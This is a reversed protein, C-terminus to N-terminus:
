NTKMSYGVKSYSLIPLDPLSKRISYILTRLTSNSVKKDGWIQEMFIENSVTHNINSCLIDIVKLQRASLRVEMDDSYFRLRDKIYKYKANIIIINPDTINKTNYLEINQLHNTYALQLSFSIDKESDTKSVFGYPSLSLIKDLLTVNLDVNIFVIPLSSIALIQKALEIAGLKGKMDIDILIMDFFNTQISELADEANHYYETKNVDYKSLLNEIYAKAKEENEIVMINKPFSM